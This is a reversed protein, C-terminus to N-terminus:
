AVLMKVVVEHRRSSATQLANGYYGGQANVKAGKDVLLRVVQTHKKEVALLLPAENDDNTAQPDAKERLLKQATAVQGHQAAWLLASSGSRQVNYRYLYNDLLRYLRWNAQAIVNIDRESELNESINQLLENPLDLLPM